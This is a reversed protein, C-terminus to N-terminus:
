RRELRGESGGLGKEERSSLVRDLAGGREVESWMLVPSRGPVEESALPWWATGGPSARRQAMAASVTWVSLGRRGGDPAVEVDVVEAGVGPHEEVRGGAGGVEGEAQWRRAVAARSEGCHLHREPSVGEVIVGLDPTDCGRHGGRGV